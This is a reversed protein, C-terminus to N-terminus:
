ASALAEAPRAPLRQGPAALSRYLRDHADILRDFGLNREVWARGTEGMRRAAAPDELVRMLAAHIEAPRYPNVLWGREGDTVLEPNGGVATAIMPLRASMGEILANSLGEASSCLVGVTARKLIAPGDTRHGLFHVVKDIGLERAHQELAVRRPGDGVIWGRIPRGGHRAMALATLFDEQRKVPHLNALIVAVPEGHTNPLPANLNMAREDFRALDIGNRIVSIKEAPLREQSILMARIADANAIVHDAVASLQRWAARRMPGYWHGMDLRGLIIKCGALKAAPVALISSYFDHAHVLEIQNKRLWAALRAIQLATNPRFISGTLPFPTPLHGLEWVFEVLGGSDDIVAVQVSHRDSLGRLLEIVQSETGGFNFSRTFEVIRM